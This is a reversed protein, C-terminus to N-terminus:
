AEILPPALPPDLPAGAGRSGWLCHLGEKLGGGKMKSFFSHPLLPPLLFSPLPLLFEAGGQDIGPDAM